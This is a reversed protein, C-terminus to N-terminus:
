ENMVQELEAQFNFAQIVYGGKEAVALRERLIAIREEKTKQAEQIAEMDEKEM